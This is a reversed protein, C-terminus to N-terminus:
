KAEEAAAHAQKNAAITTLWATAVVSALVAPVALWNVAAWGFGTQIGGSAFTAMATAGFVLFENAAQVKARESTHYTAALLTTGGIFLFNWGVGLLLLAVHYHNLATPDVLAIAASTLLFGAGAFLVQVVGFRTILSGTVFSPAFMGILHWRTVSAAADAGHGEAVIALPSATMSFSMVGYAIIANLVAVVFAPQRAIVLLSRGGGAEAPAPPPMRLGALVIMSLISLVIVALYSGAFEATPV